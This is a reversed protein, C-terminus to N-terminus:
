REEEAQRVVHVASAKFAVQVEAGTCLGLDDVAKWTVLAAVAFGCDVGVHSLPGLSRVSTVRGSYANRASGTDAGARYLTIDEPRICLCVEEGAPIDTPATVPTGGVDVTAVGRDRATVRGELINEMGVFRAVSRTNPESFIERPTGVQAFGGEIMVGMRHALRQGQLLDHTTLILTTGYDRNIRRILDEINETAIPDLNATPEDMLLLVPDTVLARAVAVRQMEGGSLTRANQEARDALGILELAEKVRSRIAAESMGRIRLGAAVNEFVTTSFVVPKQFVMGMGRRISIQRDAAHIDTGDIRVCGSSPTELLNVIRLLTSKGSGSPGIVAFIEGDRVTLDVGRLVENAGFRKSLETIEIM